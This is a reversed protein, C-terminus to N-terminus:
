TPVIPLFSPLVTTGVAALSIPDLRHLWLDAHRVGGFIFFRPVSMTGRMMEILQNERNWRRESIM